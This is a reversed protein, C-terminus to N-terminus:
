GSIKVRHLLSSHNFTRTQSNKTQASIDPDYVDRQIPVSAVASPIVDRGSASLRGTWAARTIKESTISNSQLTPFFFITMVLAWLVAASEWLCTQTTGLDM